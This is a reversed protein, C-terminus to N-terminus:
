VGRTDFVGQVTALAREVTGLELEDQSVRDAAVPLAACQLHIQIQRAPEARVVDVLVAGLACGHHEVARSEARKLTKERDKQLMM